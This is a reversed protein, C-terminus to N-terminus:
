KDKEKANKLEKLIDEKIGEYFEKGELYDIRKQLSIIKRRYYRIIDHKQRKILQKEFMTSEMKM